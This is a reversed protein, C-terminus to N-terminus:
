RWPQAGLNVELRHSPALTTASLPSAGLLGLMLIGLVVRFRGRRGRGNVVTGTNM